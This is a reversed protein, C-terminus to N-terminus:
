GPPDPTPRLCTTGSFFNNWQFPPIDLSWSEAKIVVFPSSHMGVVVATTVLGCSLFIYIPKNTADHTFSWCEHGCGASQGLVWGECRVSHQSTTPMIQDQNHCNGLNRSWNYYPPSPPIQWLKPWIASEGSIYIHTHTHEWSVRATSLLNKKFRCM